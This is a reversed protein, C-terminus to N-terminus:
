RASMMASSCDGRAPNECWSFLPKRRTVGEDSLGTSLVCGVLACGGGGDFVPFLGNPPPSISPSGRMFRDRTSSFSSALRELSRLGLSSSGAISVLCKVMALLFSISSTFARIAVAVGDFGVPIGGREVRWASGTGSDIAVPFGITDFDNRSAGGRGLSVGDFSRRSAM